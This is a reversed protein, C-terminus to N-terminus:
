ALCGWPLIPRRCRGTSRSPSGRAARRRPAPACACATARDPWGRRSSPCSRDRHAPAPVPSSRSRWRRPPRLRLGAPQLRAVDDLAVPTPLVVGGQRRPPEGLPRGLRRQLQQDSREADGAERGIEAQELDALGLGAVGHQHRRRGARDAGHDALDRLEGAAAHDARRAALVLAVPQHALEAEIRRDVVLRAAHAARQRATHGLPM